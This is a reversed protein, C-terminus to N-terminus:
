HIVTSPTFRVQINADQSPVASGHFMISQNAENYTWGNTADNPIVVGNVTVVITSPIADRNLFFQTSLSVIQSQIANLSAAYTPDCISGLIGNTKNAMQIYRQGIITSPADVAHTQRCNDDLVTIASVNYRRSAGTTKTLQDLYTVYTDVTDLTSATYDHDTGCWECRGSGSFDDEDSLIIVALFSQQRLFGTNLPSSLSDKFSSFPREDGSGGSGQTANVVFVNNLNPTGPTIVFVGTHSTADTGDKFAALSPNNQFAAEARYADSTTVSIHFDYGKAQFQSIFSSFNATLNAQLPDMSPSNDIVWLIDLQNKFTSSNQHFVLAQDAISFQVTNGCGAILPCVLIFRLLRM